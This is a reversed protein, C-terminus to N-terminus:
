KISYKLKDYNLRKDVTGDDYIYIQFINQNNTIKKGNLDVVKILERSINSSNNITVTPPPNSGNIIKM